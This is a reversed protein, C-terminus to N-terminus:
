PKQYERRSIIYNASFKGACTGSCLYFTEANGDRKIKGHWDVHQWKTKVESPVVDGCMDCDTEFAGGFMLAAFIALGALTFTVLQKNAKKRQEKFEKLEEESPKQNFLELESDPINGIDVKGKLIREELGNIYEGPKPDPFQSYNKYLIIAEGRKVLKNLKLLGIIKSLEKVGSESM